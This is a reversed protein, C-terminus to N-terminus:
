HDPNILGVFDPFDCLSMGSELQCPVETIGSHPFEFSAVVVCLLGEM